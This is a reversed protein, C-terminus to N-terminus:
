NKKKNKNRNAFFELFRVFLNAIDLFLGLAHRYYNYDHRTFKDYMVFTDYTVFGSFTVLACVNELLRFPESFTIFLRLFGIACLGTLVSSLFGYLPVTHSQDVYKSVFTFTLFTTLTMTLASTVISSDIVYLVRVVYGINIGLSTALAMHSMYLHPEKNVSLSFGLFVFSLIASIYFLFNFLGGIYM